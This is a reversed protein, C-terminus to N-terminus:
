QQLEQERQEKEVRISFEVQQKLHLLCLLNARKIETDLESEFDMQKILLIIRKELYHVLSDKKRVDLLDEWMENWLQRPKLPDAPDIVTVTDSKPDFAVFLEEFDPHALFKQLYWSLVRRHILEKVKRIM